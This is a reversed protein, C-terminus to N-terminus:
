GPRPASYKVLIDRLSLTGNAVAVLTSPGTPTGAVVDLETSVIKSGTAVGVSFNHTRAYSRYSM